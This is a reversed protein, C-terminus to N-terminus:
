MIIPTNQSSILPKSNDGENNRFYLVRCIGSFPDWKFTRRLSPAANTLIKGMNLIEPLKIGGVMIEAPFIQWTIGALPIIVIISCAGCQVVFLSPFNATATM